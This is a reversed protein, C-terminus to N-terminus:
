IPTVRPLQDVTVQDHWNPGAMVLQLDGLYGEDFGAECYCLYYHWLRIFSEDYGLARVSDRCGNFGGRWRRLTEAYHLGIDEAHCIRLDTKAASADVLAGLSPVCSGPFIYRQIFDCNNLYQRYRRDPMTIAQLALCGDAKMLRRCVSFFEPLNEHGVAEIMEISIIKDYEGSLDRYDCLLIQVQQDLKAENVRKRAFQYQEESITVATVRCGYTRAAHIAFSGWGCGIELIHNDKNLNLKRCLRDLKTVSADELSDSKSEFIASSYTMTQDLFLAFFENGLDYHAHINRRSGIRTNARAVHSQRALFAGLRSVGSDLGDIMQIDKLFIQFLKTLDSCTWEGEMWSRAAGLAGQLLVQRYFRSKIIQVTLVADGNAHCGVMTEGWADVLRFSGKMGSLRKLVASRCVADVWLRKKKHSKAIDLLSRTKAIM